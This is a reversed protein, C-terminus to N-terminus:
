LLGEDKLIEAVKKTEQENLALTPEPLNNTSIIGMLKLATMFGGVGSGFGMDKNTCATILM